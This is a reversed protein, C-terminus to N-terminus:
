ILLHSRFSYYNNKGIIVHDHIIVNIVNCAKTIKNTMNIDAQSPKVNGSPHNHVLILASAEHFLARKVIERPYVATQDITGYEQLEDAVLMNKRDLYLIRFQETKLHAMSVKLYDILLSWSGLVPAAQIEDRLSRSASEKIIKIASIVAEGVGSITLLKDKSANIVGQFSGFEALMKKALPKVDGRPKALFLIIELIEYDPLSAFSAAIFRERLRQRHGHNLFHDITM